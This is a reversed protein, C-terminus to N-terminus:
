FNGCIDLLNFKKYFFSNIATIGYFSKAPFQYFFMMYNRIFMNRFIIPLVMYALLFYMLIVVLLLVFFENIYVLKDLQPM